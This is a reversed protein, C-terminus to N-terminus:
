FKIYKILFIVEDIVCGELYLDPIIKIVWLNLSFILFVFVIWQRLFVNISGRIFYSLRLFLNISGRIFYYYVYTMIHIIQM